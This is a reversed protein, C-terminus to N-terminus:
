YRVHKTQGRAHGCRACRSGKIKRAADLFWAADNDAGYVCSAAAMVRMRASDTALPRIADLVKDMADTLVREERTERAAEVEPNSVVQLATPKAPLKAPM